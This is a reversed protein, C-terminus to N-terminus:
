GAPTDDEDPVEPEPVDTAPATEPVRSDPTSEGNRVQQLDSASVKGVRMKSTWNDDHWAQYKEPDWFEAAYFKTGDIEQGDPLMIKLNGVFGTRSGTTNRRERRLVTAIRPKAAADGYKAYVEQGVDVARARADEDLGAWYRERLTVLQPYGREAALDMWAYAAARDQAEGEGKWLMEAVMAQSPKDAYFAARRFFRIADAHQDKRYREYGLIRYRLDPHSSLFGAQIMLPDELPDPPAKRPESGHAFAFPLLALLLLLRSM